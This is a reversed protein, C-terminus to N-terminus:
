RSASRAAARPRRHLLRRRGRLDYLLRPREASPVVRVAVQGRGRSEIVDETAAPQEPRPRRGQQDERRRLAREGAQPHTPLAQDLKKKIAALHALSRTVIEAQAGAAIIQPIDASAPPPWWSTRRPPERSGPAASATM